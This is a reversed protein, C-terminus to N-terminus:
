GCGARRFQNWEAALPWPDVAPITPGAVSLPGHGSEDGKLGPRGVRPPKITRRLDLGEVERASIFSASWPHRISEPSLSSYVAFHSGARGAPSFADDPASLSRDRAKVLRRRKPQNPTRLVGSGIKPQARSAPRCGSDVSGQSRHDEPQSNKEDWGSGTCPRRGDVVRAGQTWCRLTARM